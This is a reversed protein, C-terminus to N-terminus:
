RTPAPAERADAPPALMQATTGDAFTIQQAVVSTGQPYAGGHGTVRLTEGASITRAGFSRALPRPVFVTTNNALLIMHVGGRPGAVVTQVAGTVTQEPLQAMAGHMGRGRMGGHMGGGHMGGGHHGHGFGMGGHEHADGDGDHDGGPGHHGRGFGGPPLAPAEVLVTGSANRVTSHFIVRAGNGAHSLGEVRVTQGVAAQQPLTEGGHRPLMVLTGDRLQLGRVHGMPGVIYRAIPGSATAATPAPFDGHAMPAEAGPASQAFAPVAALSLLSLTLISLTHKM